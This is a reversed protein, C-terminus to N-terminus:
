PQFAIHVECEVMGPRVMENVRIPLETLAKEQVPEM